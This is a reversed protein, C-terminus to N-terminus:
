SSYVISNMAIVLYHTNIDLDLDEVLYQVVALHGGFAACLLAPPWEIDQMTGDRIIERLLTNDHGIETMQQVRQLDGKRCAQLFERYHQVVVVHSDDDFYMM